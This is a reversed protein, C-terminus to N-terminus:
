SQEQLSAEPVFIRLTGNRHRGQLRGSEDYVYGNQTDVYYVVGDDDRLRELQPLEVSSRIESPQFTHSLCRKTPGDSSWVVPAQCVTVYPTTSPWRMRECCRHEEIDVEQDAVEDILHVRVTEERLAKLLPGEPQGLVSAVEKALRHTQTELALELAEWFLKRVPISQM